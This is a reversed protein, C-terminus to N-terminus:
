RYEPCAEQGQKQKVFFARALALAKLVVTHDWMPERRDRYNDPSLVPKEGKNQEVFFARALALAKLVV